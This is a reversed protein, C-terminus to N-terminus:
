SEGEKKVLATKLLRLNDEFDRILFGREFIIVTEGTDVHVTDVLRHKQVNFAVKTGLPEMPVVKLGALINFLRKLLADMGRSQELNASAAREFEALTTAMEKLIHIREAFRAEATDGGFGSRLETIRMDKERLQTELQMIKQSAQAIQDKATDLDQQLSQKQQNAYRQVATQLAPDAGHERSANEFSALLAEERLSELRRSWSWSGKLGHLQDFVSMYAALNNKQDQGALNCIKEGVVDRLLPHDIRLAPRILSVARELNSGGAIRDLFDFKWEEGSEWLRDQLKGSLEQAGSVKRVVVMLDLIFRLPLAPDIIIGLFTTELEPQIRITHRYILSAMEGLPHLFISAKETSLRSISALALSYKELITKWAPDMASIAPIMRLSEKWRLALSQYKESELLPPLYEGLAEIFFRTIIEKEGRKLTWDILKRSMEETSCIGTVLMDLQKGGSYDKLLYEVLRNLSYANLNYLKINQELLNDLKKRADEGELWKGDMLRFIADVRDPLSYHDSQIVMSTFELVVQFHEPSLAQGDMHEVLARRAQDYIKQYDHKERLRVHDFGLYIEEARSILEHHVSYLQNRSQSTDIRPDEKLKPQVKKWWTEWEPVYSSLYYKLDDTSARMGPFDHFVMLIVDVPKEQVAKKAGAPDLYKFAHFGLPSVKQCARELLYKTFTKVEGWGFDISVNASDPDGGEPLILETVQGVGYTSHIVYDEKIFEM